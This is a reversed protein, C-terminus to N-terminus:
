RDVKRGIYAMAKGIVQSSTLLFGAIVKMASRVPVMSVQVALRRTMSKTIQTKRIYRPLRMPVPREAMMLETAPPSSVLTTASRIMPDFGKMMAIKTTIMPGIM